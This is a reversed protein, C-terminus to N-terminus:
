SGEPPAFTCRRTGDNRRCVVWGEPSVPMIESQPVMEGNNLLVGGYVPRPTYGLEKCDNTGCCWEGAKNKFSGNSIWSEHGSAPKAWLMIAVIIGLGIWIPISLVSLFRLLQGNPLISRALIFRACVYYSVLGILCGVLAILALYKNM